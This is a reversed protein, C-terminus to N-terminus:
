SNELESSAWSHTGTFIIRYTARVILGIGVFTEQLDFVASRSRKYTFKLCKRHLWSNAYVKGLYLGVFFCNFNNQSNPNNTTPLTHHSYYCNDNNSNARKRKGDFGCIIPHSVVYKTRCRESHYNFKRWVKIARRQKWEENHDAYSALQHRSWMRFGM